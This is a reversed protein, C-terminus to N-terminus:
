DTQGKGEQLSKELIPIAEAYKENRLLAVGLTNHYLFQNPSLEVAKRALPLAAEPDRLEAPGALLFWALSNHAAAHTPDLEVVQRLLTLAKAHDKQRVCQNSQLYLRQAEAQRLINGLEVRVRRPGTGEDEAPPYPPLDWDLGLDKLGRRILRLDWVHIAYGSD